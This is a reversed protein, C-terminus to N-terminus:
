RKVLSGEVYIMRRERKTRKRSMPMLRKTMGLPLSLNPIRFEFNTSWAKRDDRAAPIFESNPIRFKFNISWAKRDDRASPILNPSSVM